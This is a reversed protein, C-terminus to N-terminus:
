DRLLVITAPAFRKDLDAAVIGFAAHASFPLPLWEGQPM